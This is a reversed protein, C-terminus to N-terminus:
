TSDSNGFNDTDVDNDNGGGPAGGSAGGACTNIRLRFDEQLRSQDNTFPFYRQMDSSSFGGSRPQTPPTFTGNANIIMFDCKRRLIECQGNNACFELSGSILMLYTRGSLHQMDFATGRLGLTGVPTRIEYSSSPSAGSIFRVAGSTSQIVFKNFSSGGPNYVLEDFVMSAGPGVVIKTGDVFEFQGLGTQNASIRENAFVSSSTRIPRANNGSVNDDVAVATGISTQAGASTAIIGALLTAASLQCLKRLM